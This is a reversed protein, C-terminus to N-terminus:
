RLVAARANIGDTIAKGAGIASSAQNAGGQATLNAWNNYLSALTSKRSAGASAGAYISAIDKSNALQKDQMEKEAAIQNAQAQAFAEANEKSNAQSFYGGALQTGAGIISPWMSVGTNSSGSGGLGLLDSLSFGSSSSDNAKGLGSAAAGAANWIDNQSASSALDDPSFLGGIDGLVSGFGDTISSLWSM